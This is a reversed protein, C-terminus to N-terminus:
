SVSRITTTDEGRGGSWFRFSFFFFSLEGRYGYRVLSFLTSTYTYYYMCYLVYICNGRENNNTTKEVVVVVVLVQGEEEKGCFCLAFFLLFLPNLGTEMEDRSGAEREVEETRM